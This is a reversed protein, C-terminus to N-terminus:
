GMFSRRDYYHFVGKRKEANVQGEFYALIFIAGFEPQSRTLRICVQYSAARAGFFDGGGGEMKIIIENPPANM